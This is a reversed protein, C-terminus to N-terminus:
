RSVDVSFSKGGRKVVTLCAGNVNISDGIAVYRLGLRGADIELRLGGKSREIRGIRGVAAIIGSFM